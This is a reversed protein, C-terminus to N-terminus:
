LAEASDNYEQNWSRNKFSLRSKNMNMRKTMSMGERCTAPWQKYGAPFTHRKCPTHKHLFSALRQSLANASTLMMCAPLPHSISGKNINSVINLLYHITRATAIPRETTPLNPILRIRVTPINILGWLARPIPKNRPTPLNTRERPSQSTIEISLSLFV